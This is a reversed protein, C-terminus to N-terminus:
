YKIGKLLDAIKYWNNDFGKVEIYKSPIPQTTWGQEPFEDYDFNHLDNLKVRLLRNGGTTQSAWDLAEKETKTFYVSDGYQGENPILGNTAISSIASNTTAHYRYQNSSKLIITWKM